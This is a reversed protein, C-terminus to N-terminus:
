QAAEPPATPSHRPKHCKNCTVRGDTHTTKGNRVPDCVCFKEEGPQSIVDIRELMRDHLKQLEDRTMMFGYPGFLMVAIARWNIFQEDTIKDNM